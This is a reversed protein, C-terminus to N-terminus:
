TSDHFRTKRITPPIAHQAAPAHEGAPRYPQSDKGSAPKYISSVFPPTPDGLYQQYPPTFQPQPAQHGERYLQQQGGPAPRGVNRGLSTRPVLHHQYEWGQPQGQFQGPHRQMAPVQSISPPWLEPNLPMSDAENKGKVILDGLITVGQSDKVIIRTNEAVIMNGQITYPGGELVLTNTQGSITGNNELRKKEHQELTEQAPVPLSERSAEAITGIQQWNVRSSILPQEISIPFLDSSKLQQMIRTFTWLYLPVDFRIPYRTAVIESYANDAPSDDVPTPIYEPGILVGLKESIHATANLLAPIVQRSGSGPVGARRKAEAPNLLQSSDLIQMLGHSGRSRSAQVEIGIGWRMENSQESNPQASNTKLMHISTYLAVTAICSWLRFCSVVDEGDTGFEFLELSEDFVAIHTPYMSSAPSGVQVLVGFKVAFSAYRTLSQMRFHRRLRGDNQEINDPFKFDGSPKPLAQRRGGTLTDQIDDYDVKELEIESHLGTGSFGLTGLQNEANQLYSRGKAYLTHFGFGSQFRTGYDRIMSDLLFSARTLDMSIAALRGSPGDEEVHSRPKQEDAFVTRNVEDSPLLHLVPLLGRLVRSAEWAFDHDLLFKFWLLINPTGSENATELHQVWPPDLDQITVWNSM